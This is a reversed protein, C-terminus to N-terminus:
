ENTWFCNEDSIVRQVTANTGPIRLMIQVVIKLNKFDNIFEDMHSYQIKKSM